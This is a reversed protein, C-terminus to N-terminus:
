HLYDDPGYMQSNQEFSGNGGNEGEDGSGSNASSGSDSDTTASDEESSYAPLPQTKKKLSDFPLLPTTFAVNEDPNASNVVGDPSENSENADNESTAAATETSGVNLLKPSKTVQKAAKVIAKTMQSVKGAQKDKTVTYVKQTGSKNVAINDASSGPLNDQKNANKAKVAKPNLLFVPKAIEQILEPDLAAKKAPQKRPARPRKTETKKQTSLAPTAEAPQTSGSPIAVTATSTQVSNLRNFPEICAKFLEEFNTLIEIAYDSANGIDAVVASLDDASNKM